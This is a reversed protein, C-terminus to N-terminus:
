KLRKIEEEALEIQIKHHEIQRELREIKREIIRKRAESETKKKAMAISYKM